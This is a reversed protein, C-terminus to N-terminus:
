RRRSRLTRVLRLGARTSFIRQRASAVVRRGPPLYGFSMRGHAAEAGADFPPQEDALKRIRATRFSVAHELQWAPSRRAFDVIAGVAPLYADDLLMQGGVKLHPALLWWDLIPYPFGHAGDVLVLDLERAPWRTLAEHSTAVHFSLQTADVGLAACAARIAGEEAPDPTIAEHVAGSAAFVITSAGSGTELTAMGPRLNEELWELATWALGWYEGGGHLGPPDRRIRDTVPHAVVEPERRV